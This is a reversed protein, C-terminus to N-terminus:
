PKPEPHRAALLDVADSPTDCCMECDGRRHKWDLSIWKGDSSVDTVTAVEGKLLRGQRDRRVIDTNAIVKDGARLRPETSM